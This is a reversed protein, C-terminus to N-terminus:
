APNRRISKAFKTYRFKSFEPLKFNFGDTQKAVNMGLANIVTGDLSIDYVYNSTKGINKFKIM